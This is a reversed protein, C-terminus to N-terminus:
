FSVAFGKYKLWNYEQANNTNDGKENFCIYIFTFIVALLFRIIKDQKFWERNIGINSNRIRERRRKRDKKKRM